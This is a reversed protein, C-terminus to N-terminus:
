FLDRLVQTIRRPAEVIPIELQEGNFLNRLDHYNIVRRHSGGETKVSWLDGGVKKPGYPLIEIGEQEEGDVMKVLRISVVPNKEAEKGGPM